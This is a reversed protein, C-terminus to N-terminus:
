EQETLNYHDLQEELWVATRHYAATMDPIGTEAGGVDIAFKGKYKIERLTSFFSAWDIRGDGPVLHEVRQGASDSVHIYSIRDALRLVSLPLNDRFYFQNATDLNFLLNHRDVAASFNVFADTGTILSGECPHLQYSLGYRDAISCAQQFTGTLEPWYDNWSFGAPLGSGALLEKSYHRRIPAQRPYELPLLPGNDLVAEAGLRRAVVCGMEFWELSRSRAAPDVAGLQPLVVCLVPVKCHCAALKEAIQDQQEFLYRINEEGIGELEIATFGMDAMEEIHDFTHRIDPPYGYKTIPYLYACTIRNTYRHKNM